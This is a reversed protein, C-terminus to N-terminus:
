AEGEGILVGRMQGLSGRLRLVARSHLQSVYADSLDLALAVEHLSYGRYYHAWLVEQERKPLRSIAEAVIDRLEGQWTVGEPGPAEAEIEFGKEEELAELSWVTTYALDRLWTRLVSTTVGLREAVEEDTAPRLAAQEIEAYAERVLKEKQRLRKPVRDQQRLGDLIRHRIATRLYAEIPVGRGSDFRELGELLGIAGLSLLEEREVTGQPLRALARDAQEAVLPLYVERPDDGAQRQYARSGSPASM